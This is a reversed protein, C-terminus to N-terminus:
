PGRAALTANRAPSVLVLMKGFDGQIAILVPVVILVLLTAVALGFTITIAMPLLFQAQLSTEFMLPTLGGITTASTLIVARLRDQSGAVIAELLAEGARLRGDISTVLIISDNVVIGSLGILAILSLVTLDYGMALHGIAAGVFGAESIPTDRVRDRGFEEALGTLLGLAGGVTADEGLILIRPDRAMEERVAETLANGYSVSRM